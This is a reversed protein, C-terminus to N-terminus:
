SVRSAVWINQSPDDLPEGSFGGFRGAVELGVSEFLREIQRSTRYADSMELRIVEEGEGDVARYTVDLHQRVGDVRTEELVSVSKGEWMLEAVPEDDDPPLVEGAKLAEHMEDIPYVDCWIEGDTRLHAVATQLCERAGELGGL